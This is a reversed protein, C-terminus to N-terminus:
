RGGGPTSFFLGRHTNGVPPKSGQVGAIKNRQKECTAKALPRLLRRLILTRGLTAMFLSWRRGCGWSSNSWRSTCSTSQWGCSKTACSWWSLAGCRMWSTRNVHKISGGKSTWRRPASSVSNGGWRGGVACRVGSGGIDGAFVWGAVRPTSGRGYVSGACDWATRRPSSQHRSIFFGSARHAEPNRQKPWNLLAKVTPHYVNDSCIEFHSLGANQPCESFVKQLHAREPQSAGIATALLCGFVASLYSVKFTM